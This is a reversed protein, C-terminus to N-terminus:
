LTVSVARLVPYQSKVSVFLMVTVGATFGGGALGVPTPLARQPAPVTVMLAVVV